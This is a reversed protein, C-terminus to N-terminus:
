GFTAIKLIEALDDPLKDSSTDDGFYENGELDRAYYSFTGTGYFGLDIHVGGYDWLFNVEGDDALGISPSGIL